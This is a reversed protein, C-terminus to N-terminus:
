NGRKVAPMSEQKVEVANTQKAQEARRKAREDLVGKMGTIEQERITELKHLYWQAGVACLVGALIVSLVVMWRIRRAARELECRRVEEDTAGIMRAVLLFFAKQRGNFGRRADAVLPHAPAETIGQDSGVQYRLAKPLSAPLNTDPQTADTPAGAVIFAMVQEERGLSKFSRIQRDVEASAVAAPSCIVILYRSDGLARDVSDDGTSAPAAPKGALYVPFLRRPFLGTARQTGILAKPVRYTKLAKYLWRAWHEDEPAYCISAWFRLGTRQRARLM